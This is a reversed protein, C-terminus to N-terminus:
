WDDGRLDIEGPPLQEMALPYFMMINKEDLVYRQGGARTARVTRRPLTKWGCRAYVKELAPLCFLLGLDLKRWMAEAMAAHLVRDGLGRGRYEPLVFVNQVGAVRVDMGGVSVTRQVVGVHTIVRGDRELLVTFAPASGHWARTQSFVSENGPFCACLGAKIARDTAQDMSSEDIIRLQM